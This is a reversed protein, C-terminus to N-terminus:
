NDDDDKEFELLVEMVKMKALKNYKGKLKQFTQILSSCFLIDEDQSQMTKHEENKEKEKKMDNSLSIALLEDIQDSRRKRSNRMVKADYNVPTPQANDTNTVPNASTSPQSEVAATAKSVNSETNRGTVIDRLFSLEVFYECTPLKTGACGSRTMKERKRICRRYNDKLRDFEKTLVSELIFILM